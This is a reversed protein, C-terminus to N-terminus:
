DDDSNFVIYILYNFIGQLYVKETNNNEDPGMGIFFM